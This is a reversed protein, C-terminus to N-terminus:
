PWVAKRSRKRSRTKLPTLEVFLTESIEAHDSWKMEKGGKVWVNRGFTEATYVLLSVLGTKGKPGSRLKEGNQTAGHGHIEM